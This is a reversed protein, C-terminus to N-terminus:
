CSPVYVVFPAFLHVLWICRKMFAVIISLEVRDPHNALHAIWGEFYWSIQATKTATPKGQCVLWGPVEEIDGEDKPELRRACAVLYVMCIQTSVAHKTEVNSM